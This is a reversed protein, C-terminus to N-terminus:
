RRQTVLFINGCETCLDKHLFVFVCLLILTDFSCLFLVLTTQMM